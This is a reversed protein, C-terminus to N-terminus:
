SSPGPPCRCQGGKENNKLPLTRKRRMVEGLGGSSRLSRTWNPRQSGPSSRMSAGRTSCCRCDLGEARSRRFWRCNPGSHYGCIKAPLPRFQIPSRVEPDGGTPVCRYLKVRPRARGGAGRADPTAIEGAQWEQHVRRTRVTLLDLRASASRRHRRRSRLEPLRNPHAHVHSGGRRTAQLNAPGSKGGPTGQGRGHCQPRPQISPCGGRAAIASRRDVSGKRGQYALCDDKQGGRERFRVRGSCYAYPRAGAPQRRPRHLLREDRRCVV